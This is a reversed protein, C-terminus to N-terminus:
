HAGDAAPASGTELAQGFRRMMQATIPVMADVLIAILKDKDKDQMRSALRNAVGSAFLERRAAQVAPPMPPPTTRAGGIGPMASKFYYAPAPSNMFDSLVQLDDPTYLRALARGISQEMVPRDFEVTDLMASVMASTWNPPTKGGGLTTAPTQAAAKTMVARVQAWMPEDVAGYAGRVISVGLALADTAAADRRAQDAALGDAVHIMMPPTIIRINEAEADAWLASSQLDKVLARGAESQKLDALAADAEPPLPRHAKAAAANLTAILAPGNIFTQPGKLSDPISPKPQEHAIVRDIYPGGPGNMFKAAARLEEVSLHAALTRALLPELRSRREVLTQHTATKFIEAWDSWRGIVAPTNFPATQLIPYDAIDFTAEPATNLVTEVYTRAIGAALALAEPSPAAAAPPAQADKAATPSATALTATAASFLLAALAARRWITRRM